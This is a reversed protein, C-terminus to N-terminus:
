RESQMFSDFDEGLFRKLKATQSVVQKYTKEARRSDTDYGLDRAWEDFSYDAM